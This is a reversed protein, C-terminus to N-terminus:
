DCLLQLDHLIRESAALQEQAALTKSHAADQKTNLFEIRTQCVARAEDKTLEVHFGFGINVFLCNNDSHQQEAKCFVVGHGLDVSVSTAAIDKTDASVTLLLDQYDKLEQGILAQKSIVLQLDPRLQKNVFDSYELIKSENQELQQQQENRQEKFPLAM